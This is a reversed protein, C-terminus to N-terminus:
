ESYTRIQFVLFGYDCQLEAAAEHLDRKLKDLDVLEEDGIDIANVIRSWNTARRNWEADKLQVEARLRDLDVTLYDAYDLLFKDVRMQQMLSQDPTATGLKDLHSDVM